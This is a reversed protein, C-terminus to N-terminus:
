GARRQRWWRVGQAAAMLVVVAGGAIWLTQASPRLRHLAREVQHGFAYGLATFLCGWVAAAVANVVVYTRAPVHTTGIAVPSVTRLGYIFRFAFIFGIPYREMWRTARAFAARERLSAVWRHDRFRRGAAFFAQDAVFSGISAAAMAGPLPFYGAHSLLGGAVVM